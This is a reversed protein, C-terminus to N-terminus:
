RPAGWAFCPSSARASLTLVSLGIYRSALLNVMSFPAFAGAVAWDDLIACLQPVASLHLAEPPFSTAVLFASLVPHVAVTALAVVCLMLALVALM